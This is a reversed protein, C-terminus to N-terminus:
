KLLMHLLSIYDTINFKGNGDLDLADASIETDSLGLLHKKVAIIDATNIIGDNNCDGKIESTDSKEAEPEEKDASLDSETILDFSNVKVNVNFEGSGYIDAIFGAEKLELNKFGYEEWVKMHESLTITNKIKGSSEDEALNNKRVSWYLIPQEIIYRSPPSIYVARYIDYEEGDITATGLCPVTPWESYKWGDIVYFEYYYEGYSEPDISTCGYAGIFIDSQGFDGHDASFDVDYEMTIKGYDECCREDFKRLLKYYGSKLNSFVCSYADNEPNFDVSGIEENVNFVEYEYKGATGQCIYDGIKVASVTGASSGAAVALGLLLASIQCAYKKNM